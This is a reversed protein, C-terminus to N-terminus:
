KKGSKKIGGSSLPGGAAAKAKMEKLAKAEAQQRAKFAIDDDDLERTQGKPKGM